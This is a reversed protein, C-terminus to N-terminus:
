DASLNCRDLKSEMDSPEVVTGGDEFFTQQLARMCRMDALQQRQCQESLM